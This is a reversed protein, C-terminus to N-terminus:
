FAASLDDLVKREVDSVKNGLGLFGGAAKAVEEARGLVSNKLQTGAVVEIKDQVAAIYGKWADLLDHDPRHELWVALLQYSATGEKIGVSAAASLIAVKETDEMQRDAWAVFVLPIMSVSTMSDATVGVSVLADIVPGNDIGSAAMLQDSIEKDAREARMRELLEVDQKKFFLEEMKRARDNVPDSM